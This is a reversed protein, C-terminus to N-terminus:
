SKLGFLNKFNEQVYLDSLQFADKDTPLKSGPQVGIGSLSFGSYDPDAGACRRGEPIILKM